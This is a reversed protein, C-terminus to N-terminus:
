ENATELYIEYESFNSSVYSMLEEDNFDNIEEDSSESLLAFFSNEDIKELISLYTDEETTTTEIASNNKAMYSPLFSKLPWFVLLFVLIFSAALGIAPKLLRIIRSKPNPLAQKETELRTHLRSSFDEFYNDPVRFPHEKKIESLKPADNKLESM